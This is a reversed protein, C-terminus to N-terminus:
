RFIVSKSSLLHTMLIYISDLEDNKFEFKSRGTCDIYEKAANKYVRKKNKKHFLHNLHTFRKSKNNVLDSVYSSRIDYLLGIQEYTLQGANYLKSIEIYENETLKKNVIEVDEVM